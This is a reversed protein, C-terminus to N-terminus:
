GMRAFFTTPMVSCRMPTWCTISCKSAVSWTLRSQPSLDASFISNIIKGRVEPRCPSRSGRGTRRRSGRSVRTGPRRLFMGNACGMRAAGPAPCCRCYAACNGQYDRVMNGLQAEHIFPSHRYLRHIVEPPLIPSSYVLGCQFVGGRPLAAAGADEPRSILRITGSRNQSASGIPAGTGCLACAIARQDSPRTMPWGTSLSHDDGWLRDSGPEAGVWHFPLRSQQGGTGADGVALRNNNTLGKKVLRLNGAVRHSQSNLGCFVVWRSLMGMRPFRPLNEGAQSRSRSFVPKVETHDGKYFDGLAHSTPILMVPRDRLTRGTTM